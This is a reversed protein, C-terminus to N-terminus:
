SATASGCEAHMIGGGERAIVRLREASFVTECFRLVIEADTVLLYPSLDNYGAPKYAM